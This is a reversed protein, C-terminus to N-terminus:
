STRKVAADQEGEEERRLVEGDEGKLGKRGKGPASDM